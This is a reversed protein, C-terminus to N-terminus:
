GMRQRMMAAISQMRDLGQQSMQRRRQIVEQAGSESESLMQMGMMAAAGYPNSNAAGTMGEGGMMGAAQTDIPNGPGPAMAAAGNGMAPPPQMPPAQNPGMGPGMQQAWPPAGGMAQQHNMGPQMMPAGPNQSPNPPMPMNQMRNPQQQFPNYM